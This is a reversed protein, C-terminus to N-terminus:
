RLAVHHTLGGMMARLEKMMPEVVKEALASAHAEAEATTKRKLGEQKKGDKEKLASARAEVAAARPGPAPTSAVTPKARAKGKGSRPAAAAAGVELSDEVGEDEGELVVVPPRAAGGPAGVELVMDPATAARESLLRHMGAYWFAPARAAAAGSKTAAAHAATYATRLNLWKAKVQPTAAPRATLLSCSLPQALARRVEV